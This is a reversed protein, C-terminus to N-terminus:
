KKYQNGNRKYKKGAIKKYIVIPINMKILLKIKDIINLKKIECKYQPNKKILKRQQILENNSQNEKVYISLKLTDISYQLTYIKKQVFEDYKKNSYENFGNLYEVLLSFQKVFNEINNLDYVEATVGMENNSNYVSMVQPLVALKGTLLFGTLRTYDGFWYKKQYKKKVFYERRIFYSSTHVYYGCISEEPTLYHIDTWSNFYIDKNVGKLDKRITNHFCASCEQHSEMFDYQLQLKNEDCWYDDGECLAIYKGRAVPFMINDVLEVGKSYQNETEYIPVIIDPYKKAYEEIIAKTGDTSVDDHIIAEFKFNTKQMVFGDLCKRLFKEHNYATCLVSVKIDEDKKNKNSEM